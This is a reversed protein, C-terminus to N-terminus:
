GGRCDKPHSSSARGLSIARDREAREWPGDRAPYSFARRVGTNIATVAEDCSGPRSVTALTPGARYTIPPGRCLGREDGDGLSPVLSRANASSARLQAGRSGWAAEALSNTATGPPLTQTPLNPLDMPKAPGVALAMNNVGGGSPARFRLL